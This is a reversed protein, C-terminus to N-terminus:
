EEDEGGEEEGELDVDEEVSSIEDEEQEEEKQEEEKQPKKVDKNITIVKPKEETKELTVNVKPPRPLNSVPAKRPLKSVPNKPQTQTLTLKKVPPTTKTAKGETAEKPKKAPAKKAPAKKTPPKPPAEKKAPPAKRSASPQEGSKEAEEKKKKGGKPHELNKIEIYELYKGVCKSLETDNLIAKQIDYDYVTARKAQEANNGAVEVIEALIYEVVATMAIEYDKKVKLDGKKLNIIKRVRSVPISLGAKREVPARDGGKNSSHKLIAKESEQNAHKVLSGYLVEVVATHMHSPLLTKEKKISVVSAETLDLVLRTMIEWVYEVAHGSVRGDPRVQLYVKKIATSPMKPEGSKQSDESAPMQEEVNKLELQNSETTM